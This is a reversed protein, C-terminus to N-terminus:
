LQMGEVENIFQQSIKKNVTDIHPQERTRTKSGPKREGTAKIVHGFELLHTLRYNKDNYITYSVTGLRDAEKQRKWTKAYRGTDKPSTAKLDKVGQASARDAAENCKDIVEQNMSELEKKIAEGLDDIRTIRM